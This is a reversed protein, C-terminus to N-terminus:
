HQAPVPSATPTTDVNLCAKLLARARQYRTRATSATVGLLAASEAITFGDWHVMRVLESLEDPLRDVADRVENGTDASPAPGHFTLMRLKNALRWRRREAREANLLVNRAIGFLWMRAGTAESPLDGVRQWAVMMCEALLDAADGSPTRREFYHLLDASNYALADTIRDEDTSKV